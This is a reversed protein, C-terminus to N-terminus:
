QLLVITVNECTTGSELLGEPTSGVRNGEIFDVASVKATDNGPGCTLNDSDRDSAAFLKDNGKRGNMADENVGGTITDAGDGGLMEDDGSAGVMVDAGARGTMFDNGANGKMEDVGGSGFMDDANITGVCTVGDARNPCNITNAALAVGSALVLATGMVALAVLLRKVIKGKMTSGTIRFGVQGPAWKMPSWVAKM